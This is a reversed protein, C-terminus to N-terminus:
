EEKKGASLPQRLDETSPTLPVLTKQLAKCM